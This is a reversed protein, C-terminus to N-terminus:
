VALKSRLPELEELNPSVLPPKVVTKLPAEPDKLGNGTIVLVVKDSRDVTGKELLKRLGALPAVAAPEGFIGETSALMRQAELLEHDSVSEAAGKSERLAKLTKTANRPKGVAIAGALTHPIVPEVHDARENFATVVPCSGQAQIGIMRPKGSTFEFEYFEKFGKWHGALNCGNAIPVAVWDPAKWDLQECTEYAMTKKGETRYPNVAPNCNYWGFRECALTVLDFVQDYNGKVQVIRAGYVISQSVKGIPTTDPIMVICKLGARAAYGAMSAAANGTSAIAVIDREFELAKTAAMATARDKFVGTPNRTEDKVYLNKMGLKEALRKSKILPTNGESLSVVNKPELIPLFEMYKLLTPARETLVKKNLVEAIADYDYTVDLVDGCRRCSYVIEEFSYEAGCRVCILSKLYRAM